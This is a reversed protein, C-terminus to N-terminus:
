QIKTCKESLNHSFADVRGNSEPMELTEVELSQLINFGM